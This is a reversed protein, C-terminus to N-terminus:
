AGKRYIGFLKYGLFHHHLSDVDLNQANLEQNCVLEALLANIKEHSYKQIKDLESIITEIHILQFGVQDMANNLTKVEFHSWHGHCFNSNSPGELRVALSNFNPVQIAAYGGPKLFGLVEQLFNLPSEIHELVDLITIVDYKKNKLPMDEPFFGKFAALGQNRSVEVSRSNAEIGIASWGKEKAALLMQGNSCGIDLMEVRPQEILDGVKSLIYSAKSFELNSYIESIKLQHYNEMFVGDEYHTQDLDKKFVEASYVFDCSGCKIINMGRTFYIRNGGKKSCLPCINRINIIGEMFCGNQDLLMSDALEHDRRFSHYYSDLSARLGPILAVDFINKNM